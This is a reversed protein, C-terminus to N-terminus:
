VTCLYMNVLGRDKESRQDKTVVKLREVGGGGGELRTHGSGTGM